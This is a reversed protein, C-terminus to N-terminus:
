RQERRVLSYSGDRDVDLLYRTLEGNEFIAAGEDTALYLREGVRAIGTVVPSEYRGRISNTARDWKVVGGSYGAGEPRRVLSLWIAAPEVLLAGVSWDALEPPYTMEFLRTSLNFAGFGGIGRSGEGDYFTL